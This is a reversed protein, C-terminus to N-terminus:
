SFKFWTPLERIPFLHEQGEDNIIVVAKEDPNDEDPCIDIVPYETGPTIHSEGSDIM